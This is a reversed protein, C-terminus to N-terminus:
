IAALKAAARSKKRNATGAKIIGKKRAKDLCSIYARYAKGAIDKDGKSIAELFGKKLSAIRTNVSRNRQQSLASTKVRKAASKINPM